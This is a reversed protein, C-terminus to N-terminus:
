FNIESEPTLMKVIEKFIYFAKKDNGTNESITTFIIVTYEESPMFGFAGSYGNFDPNQLYWGNAVVFGSAFYLDNNTVPEPKSVLENFSEKSLLKGKGFCYAWKGLDNLNSYLSGSEGTWSPNWFTADEYVGRDKSYAHLVPSPLEPTYSYGTHELGLPRFIYEEYLEAITQGTIKEIVEGLITFETHSYKQNTGPNFELKGDGTGYLIIEERSINRFPENIVISDFTKNYVYDKYGATNKILMKITVEDAFILDPMWKSIRDNLNIKGKDSLIMLLTGLFTETVGGMRFHMGADAPVSTMSEGLAVRLIGQEGKRIEALLSKVGTENKLVNLKSLILDKDVGANQSFTNSFIGTFALVLIVKKLM